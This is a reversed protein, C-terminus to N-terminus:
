TAAEPDVPPRDVIGTPALADVMWQLALDSQAAADGAEQVFSIEIGRRLSPYPTTKDSTFGAKRFREALSRPFRTDTPEALWFTSKHGAINYRAGEPTVALWLRHPAGESTFHVYATVYDKYIGPSAKLAGDPLADALRPAVDHLLRYGWALQPDDTQPNQALKLVFEDMAAAFDVAVAAVDIEIEGNELLTGLCDRVQQWTADKARMPHPGLPVGPGTLTLTGVRRVHAEYEPEYSQWSRIYADPQYLLGDPMMFHHLSAGIKLEVILEFTRNAGALSIDPYLHGTPPVPRLTGWARAGIGSASELATLAEDDDIFFLSAFELAFNKSHNLLWALVVTVQRELPHMQASAPTKMLGTILNPTRWAESEPDVYFPVGTTMAECEQREVSFGLPKTDEAAGDSRGTM